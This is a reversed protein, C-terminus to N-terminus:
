RRRVSQRGAAKGSGDYTVALHYWRDPELSTHGQVQMLKDPFQNVLFFSLKGAFTQLTYGRFFKKFNEMRSVISQRGDKTNLRVWATFSSTDNATFTSVTAPTLLYGLGALSAAEGLVGATYSAPAAEFVTQQEPLEQGRRNAVDDPTRDLPWHALLEENPVQEPRSHSAEWKAQGADIQSALANMRSQAASTRRQLEALSM